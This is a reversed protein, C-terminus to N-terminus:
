CHRSPPLDRMDPESDLFTQAFQLFRYVDAFNSAVGLSVRPVSALGLLASCHERTGRHPGEGAGDLIERPLHFAAEHAGPNCLCGTRLSITQANARQEIVREDV